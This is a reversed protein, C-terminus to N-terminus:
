TIEYINLPASTLRSHFFTWSLWSEVRTRAFIQPTNPDDDWHLMLGGECLHLGPTIVHTQPIPHCMEERHLCDLATHLSILGM